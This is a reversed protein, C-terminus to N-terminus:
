SQSHRNSESLSGCTSDDSRPIGKQRRTCGQLGYHMSCYPQLTKAHIHISSRSGIWDLVNSRPTASRTGAFLSNGSLNPLHRPKQGWFQVAHVRLPFSASRRGGQTGTASRCASPPDQLSEEGEEHHTSTDCGTRIVKHAPDGQTTVLYRLHM